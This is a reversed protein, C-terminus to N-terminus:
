GGVTWTYTAAPSAVLPLRKVYADGSWELAVARVQFNM